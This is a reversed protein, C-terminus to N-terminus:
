RNRANTKEKNRIADLANYIAPEDIDLFRAIDFTGFGFNWLNRADGIDQDTLQLVRVIRM